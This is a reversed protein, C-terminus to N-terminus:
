DVGGDGENMAAYRASASARVLLAGCTMVAKANGPHTRLQRVFVHNAPFFTSNDLVYLPRRHSLMGARPWREPLLAPVHVSGNGDPLVELAFLLSGDEQVRVVAGKSHGAHVEEGITRPEDAPAAEILAQPAHGVAIAEVEVLGLGLPARWSRPWM